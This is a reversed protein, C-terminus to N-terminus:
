VVDGADLNGVEGIHRALEAADPDGRLFVCDEGMAVVHGRDPAGDVRDPIVPQGSRAVLGGNRGVELAEVLPEIGLGAIAAELDPHRDLWSVACLASRRPRFPGTQKALRVSKTM